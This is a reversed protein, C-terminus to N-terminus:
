QYTECQSGRNVSVRRGDCLGDILAQERPNHSLDVLGDLHGPAADLVLLVGDDPYEVDVAKLDEVVVPSSGARGAQAPHGAKQYLSGPPATM